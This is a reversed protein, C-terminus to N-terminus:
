LFLLPLRQYLNARLIVIIHLFFISFSFVVFRRSVRVRRREKYSNFRMGGISYMIVYRKVWQNADQRGQTAVGKVKTLEGFNVQLWQGHIRRRASWSWRHNLRGHWPSLYHNYYSSASLQGNQVRKDEVGLPMVCRDTQYVSHFILVSVMYLKTRLSKYKAIRFKFVSFDFFLINAM